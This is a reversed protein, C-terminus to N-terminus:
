TYRVKLDALNRKAVECALMTQAGYAIRSRELNLIDILGSLAKMDANGDTWKKRSRMKELRQEPKPMSAVVVECQDDGPVGSTGAFTRNEANEKVTIFLVGTSTQGDIVESESLSVTKFLREDPGYRAPILETEDCMRAMEITSVPWVYDPSAGNPGEPLGTPACISPRRVEREEAYDRAGACAILAESGPKLTLRAGLPNKGILETTAILRQHAQQTYGATSHLRKADLIADLWPMYVNDVTGIIEPIRYGLLNKLNVEVFGTTTAVLATSPDLSDQVNIEQRAKQLRSLLARLDFQTLPDRQWQDFPQSPDKNALKEHYGRVVGLMELQLKRTTERKLMADIQEPLEDLRKYVDALLNQIDNLKSISVKLLEYNASLMAGVGGDSQNHAAIMGAVTSGVALAAVVWARSEDPYVLAGVAGLPLLRTVITSAASGKLFSRRSLNGM